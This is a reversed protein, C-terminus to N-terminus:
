QRSNRRTCSNGGDVLPHGICASFGIVSIRSSFPLTAVIAYQPESLAARAESFVSFFQWFQMSQEFQERQAPQQFQVFQVFQERQVPQEFQESQVFQLSQVSQEFQEFQEFQESQVSQERQTPM